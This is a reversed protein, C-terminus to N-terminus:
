PAEMLLGYRYAMTNADGNREAFRRPNTVTDSALQNLLAQALQDPKGPETLVGSDACVAEETAGIRSAVVPVGCAQAEILTMPYGELYSPLCFLDLASYFRDMQEVLGLFRVRSELGLEKVRLQLWSALPGTGAIALKIQAPLQNLALILDEQGKEPVLRGACGIWQGEDLGFQERASARDRPSFRTLDIGNHIVQIGSGLRKALMARAVADADAVLRPKGLSLALRTLLTQRSSGFHWADHETHVWRHPPVLSRTMAMYVLPGIHHSHVCVPRLQRILRALRMPLTLDWGSRKELGYVPLGTRGIRPWNALLTEADSELSVLRVDFRQRLSGALELALTELGGPSLHQVLQIMVPKSM